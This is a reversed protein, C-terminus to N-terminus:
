KAPPFAKVYEAIARAQDPTIKGANKPMKGKGDLIIKAIEEATARAQFAPDNLNASGKAMPKATGDVGHCVVCKAAYVSKGDAPVPDQALIPLCGLVLLGWASGITWIKKM